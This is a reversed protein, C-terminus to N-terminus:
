LSFIDKGDELDLLRIGSFDRRNGGLPPVEESRFVAPEDDLEVAVSLGYPVNDPEVGASMFVVPGPAFRVFVNAAARPGKCTDEDTTGAPEFTAPLFRGNGAAGSAGGTAGMLKPAQSGGVFLPTSEPNETRMTVGIIPIITLWTQFSFKSRLPAATKAGGTGAIETEEAGVKVAKFSAM